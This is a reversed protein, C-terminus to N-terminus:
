VGGFDRALLYFSKDDKKKKERDLMGSGIDEYKERRTM